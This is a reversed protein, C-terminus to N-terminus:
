FGRRNAYRFLFRAWLGEQVVGKSAEVGGRGQAHERDTEILSLHDAGWPLAWSSSDREEESCVYLSSPLVPRSEVVATEVFQPIKFIEPTTEVQGDSNLLCYALETNTTGLDIGISYRM